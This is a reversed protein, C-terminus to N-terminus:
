NKATDQMTRDRQKIPNANTDDLSRKFNSLLNLGEDIATRVLEKAIPHKMVKKIEKLIKQNDM